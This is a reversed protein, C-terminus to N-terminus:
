NGARRELISCISVHVAIAIVILASIELTRLLYAVSIRFNSDLFYYMSRFIDGGPVLCFIGGIFFITVPAKKRKALRYSLISATLASLLVSILISGAHRESLCFVFWTAAGTIGCSALHGPEAHFLIALAVSMMFSVASQFIMEPSILWDRGLSFWTTAETLALTAEGQRFLRIVMSLGAALFGAQLLAEMMRSVGSLYDKHLLDQISVTFLVGPVLPMMSGYLVPYLNEGVHFFSVFLLSFLGLTAASLFHRVFGLRRPLSMLCDTVGLGLGVLLSAAADRPTGGFMITFSGAILSYTAVRLTLPYHRRKKITKLDSLAEEISIEGCVFLRSLNNTLSIQALNNDRDKICKTLSIARNTAPDDLCVTIGTVSAYAETFPFGTTQLIRRVTDEVRFSDAGHAALNEGILLALRCVDKYRPDYKVDQRSEDMANERKEKTRRLISQVSTWGADGGIM